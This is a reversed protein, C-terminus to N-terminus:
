PNKCMECGLLRVALSAAARGACGAVCAGYAEPGSMGTRLRNAYTFSATDDVWPGDESLVEGM